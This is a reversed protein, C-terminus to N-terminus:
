HRTEYFEMFADSQQWKKSKNLLYLKTGLYGICNRTTKMLHPPDFFVWICGDSSYLNIARDFVNSGVTNNMEEHMMYYFKRNPLAGGNVTAIVQLKCTLELAAVVEWFTPRIHYATANQPLVLRALKLTQHM